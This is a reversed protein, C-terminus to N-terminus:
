AKLYKQKFWLALIVAIHENAQKLGEEFDTQAFQWRIRQPMSCLPSVRAPESSCFKARYFYQISYEATIQQLTWVCVCVYTVRSEKGTSSM